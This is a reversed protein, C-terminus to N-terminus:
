DMWRETGGEEAWAQRHGDKDKDMGGKTWGNRQEDKGRDMARGTYM